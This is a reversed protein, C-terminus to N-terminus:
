HQSLTNPLLPRRHQSGTKTDHCPPYTTLHNLTEVDGKTDRCSRQHRLLSAETSSQSQRSLTQKNTTAVYDQHRSLAPSIPPTAVYDQKGTQHSDLHISLLILPLRFLAMLLTVPPLHSSMESSGLKILGTSLPLFFSFSFSFFLSLSLQLSLIEVKERCKKIIPGITKPPALSSTIRAALGECRSRFQPTKVFELLYPNEGVQNLRQSLVM